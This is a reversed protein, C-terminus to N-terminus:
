ADSGERCISLARDAATRIELLLLGLADTPGLELNQQAASRAGRLISGILAAIHKRQGTM